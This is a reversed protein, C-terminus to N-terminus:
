GIADDAMDELTYPTDAPRGAVMSQIANYINPVPADHLITSAGVDRNDYRVVYFGRSALERCFDDHWLIMQAGLGMILVIPPDSPDGCTDYELEIGNCHARPM